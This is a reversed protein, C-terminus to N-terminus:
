PIANQLISQSREIYKFLAKLERWLPNRSNMQTTAYFVWGPWTANEPSYCTGHFVIHNVGAMFFRNTARLMDSTSENWHENLWTFSESSVLKKGSVHAASSAFKNTFIAVTGPQFAKNDRPLGYIETEPIDSAAYIDLINGPSGTAQNRLLSKHSNAWEKMPQIFSELVLESTTERYDSRVRVVVEEDSCDGALVYLYEALDYGRRDRFEEM